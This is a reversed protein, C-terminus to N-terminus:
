DVFNFKCLVLIKSIYPKLEGILVASTGNVNLVGLIKIWNAVLEDFNEPKIPSDVVDLIINQTGIILIEDLTWDDPVALLTNLLALIDFEEKLEVIADNNLAHTFRSNWFSINLIIFALVLSPKM